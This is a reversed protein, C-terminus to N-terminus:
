IRTDKVMKFLFYIIKNFIFIKLFNKVVCQFYKDKIPIM